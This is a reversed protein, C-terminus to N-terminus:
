SHTKTNSHKILIFNSFLCDSKKEDSMFGYKINCNSKYIM